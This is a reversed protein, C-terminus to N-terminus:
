FNGGFSFSDRAFRLYPTFSQVKCYVPVYVGRKAHKLPSCIVSFNRKGYSPVTYSVTYPHCFPTKEVMFIIEEEAQLSILLNYESNLM